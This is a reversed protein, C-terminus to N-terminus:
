TGPSGLSMPWRQRQSALGVTIVKVESLAGLMVASGPISPATFKVM